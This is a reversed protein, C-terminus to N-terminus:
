GYYTPDDWRDNYGTSEGSTIIIEQQNHTDQYDIGFGGTNVAIRGLTQIDTPTTLGGTVSVIEVAM